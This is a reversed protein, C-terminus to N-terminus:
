APGAAAFGRAVLAVEDGEIEIEAPLREGDRDLEGVRQFLQEVFGVERTVRLGAPLGAQVHEDGDAGADAERGTLEEGLQEATEDGIAM